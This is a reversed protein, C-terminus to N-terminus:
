CLLTTIALLNSCLKYFYQSDNAVPSIRESSDELSDECTQGSTMAGSVLVNLTDCSGERLASITESLDELADSYENVCDAFSESARDSYNSSTGSSLKQVRSLIGRGQAISLDLAIGALGKLDSTKSRPDSRLSSVCIDSYLTHNCALDLLDEAAQDLSLPRSCSGLKSSFNILLLVALLQLILAINCSAM